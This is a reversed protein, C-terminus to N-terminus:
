VSRAVIYSTVKRKAYINPYICLYSFLYNSQKTTSHLRLNMTYHLRWFAPVM